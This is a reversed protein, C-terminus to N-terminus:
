GNPGYGVAVTIANDVLARIQQKRYGPYLQRYYNTLYQGYRRYVMNYVTPRALAKNKTSTTSKAWGKVPTTSVEGNPGIWVATSTSGSTKQGLSRAYASAAQRAAAIKDQVKAGTNANTQQFKKQSLTYRKQALAYNRDANRQAATARSAATNANKQAVAVRQQGLSIQAQKYQANTILGEQKLQLLAKKYNQDAVQKAQAISLKQSVVANNFDIQRQKQLYDLYAQQQKAEANAQAAAAATQSQKQGYAWMQLQQDTSKAKELYDLIDSAEKSSLSLLDERLKMENATADGLMQKINQTAYLSYIGPQAAAYAAWNKGLEDNLQSNIAANAALHAGVAGEPGAMLAQGASQGQSYIDQMKQPMGQMYQAFEAYVGKMQDARAQAMGDIQAIQDMIQQRLPAYVQDVIAKAQAPDTTQLLNKIFQFPDQTSTKPNAPGGPSTPTTVSRPPRPARVVPPRRAWDIAAGPLRPARPRSMGGVNESMGGPPLHIGPTRLTGGGSSILAM